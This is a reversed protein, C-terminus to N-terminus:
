LHLKGTVEMALCQLQCTGCSELGPRHWFPGHKATTWDSHADSVCHHMYKLLASQSRCLAMDHQVLATEHTTHKRSLFPQLFHKSSRCHMDPRKEIRRLSGSPMCGSTLQKVADVRDDYAGQLYTRIKISAHYGVAYYSVHGM